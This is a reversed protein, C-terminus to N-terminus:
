EQMSALMAALLETNNRPPIHNEPRMIMELSESPCTSICLGCGICKAEDREVVNDATMSFAEMPCRDLCAGCGQCSDQDVQVIYNSTAGFERRGTEKMMRLIGCHCVCCNCIFEIRKSTNSAIHVLGAERSRKLIARAEDPSIARGFGQEIIFKASNGLSLCVDKIKGCGQNVLDGHHRCYCTSVTIHETSDLYTSIQEYPLVTFGPPIEEEVPLVRAFPVTPAKTSAPPANRAALFFDEFLRALHKDREGEEGKLFQFEFIGPVLPLTQYMKRGEKHTYIILGKAAMRELLPEVDALARGADSAIQQPTALGFPMRAFMDAEDPTFLEELLAYFEKCAVPMVAGARMNLSDILRDYVETGM